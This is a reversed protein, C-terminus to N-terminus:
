PVFVTFVMLLIQQSLIDDNESPCKVLIAVISHLERIERNLAGKGRTMFFGKNEGTETLNLGTTKLPKSHYCRIYMTLHLRKNLYLLIIDTIILSYNYTNKM